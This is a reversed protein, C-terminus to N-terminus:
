HRLVPVDAIRPLLHEIFENTAPDLWHADEFILLIPNHLALGRLQDGLFRLVRERRQEAALEIAGYRHSAPLSLLPALLAMGEAVDEAGQRLLAELRDLKAEPADDPLFGAAYELHRFVPHLLSATHFPACQM